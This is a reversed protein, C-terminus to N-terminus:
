EDKLVEAPNTGSARLAHSSVTIVTLVITILGSVIFPVPDLTDSYVFNELWRRGFEIGGAIALIISVLIMALYSFLIMGVIRSSTAGMVKRIGIEKRRQEVSYAALSFLGMCAVLITIISFFTFIKGRMMDTEFQRDFEENLFLYEFPNDPFLELWVNEIYELTSQVNEEDMKIYVVNNKLRYILMLSELPNYMGTQHFNKMLGIVKAPAPDEGTTIEVKKGIPEDWKLREALVENILVGQTTDGIFDLSFDRGGLMEIGLTEIFDQDAMFFNIGRESMGQDTEVRFIVKPSDYGLTNSASGVNYISPNERLKQRFVDLKEIMERNTLRLRLVNENNFGPDMNRLYSLQDYVIWTSMIMFTSISFQFIVLIKRLSLVRNGANYKVKLVRVPNFSSLYFAPYSGGIIGIIITIGLLILLVGPSFILEQGLEKGSITNFFPILFYVVGLSLIMAILAHFLSETLFQGILEAKGSGAVKRIGVERARRVSRAVALNMYNIAVLIMMLIIAASFIYIYIMNGMPEPEGEYDSHLHISAIPMAEYRIKINLREFIEAQYNDYVSPLLKDFDKGTFNENLVVYTFVGYNGWSGFNEPLSSASILADFRIHSNEPINKMVGTIEYNRNGERELTKGVPDEDGFYKRAMSETLVITNPRVLSKDPDGQLFPFTFVDFVSSDAFYIDNETFRLEEYRYWSIGSNTLRVFEKVQPFDEILRPAMPFPCVNWNFADDPESIRSGIRYINEHNEHFRDYSMEDIIYMLLLLSASIGVILGGINIINYLMDRRLNRFAIIIFNQLM